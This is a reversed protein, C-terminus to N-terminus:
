LDRRNFSWIAIGLGVFVYLVAYGLMLDSPESAVFFPGALNLSSSGTGAPVFLLSAKRWLAEVPLLVSAVIGLDVATENRLLAGIQETWGGIFALGYLMFVLAGNALTSLRTGGALGITMIIIGELAMVALGAPVNAVGIGARWRVIAIVGGPLILVFLCIIVVFALWKGVLVQWRPIAKTVLLDITHSDIEGAIAGAAFLAALFIILFNTVYLGALTFFVLPLEAQQPSLDAAIDRHIYHFSTGYFGLFALSLLLALWLIRRRQAERLTFAVLTLLTM